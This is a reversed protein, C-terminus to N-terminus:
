NDKFSPGKQEPKDPRKIGNKKFWQEIFEEPHDKYGCHKFADIIAREMYPKYVNETARRARSGIMAMGERAVEAAIRAADEVSYRNWRKELREYIEKELANM